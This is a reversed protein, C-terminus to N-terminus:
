TDRDRMLEENEGYLMDRAALASALQAELMRARDQMMSVGFILGVVLGVALCGLNVVWAEM